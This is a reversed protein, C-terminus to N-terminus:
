GPAWGRARARAQQWKRELKADRAEREARQAAMEAYGPSCGCDNGAARTEALPRGEFGALACLEENLEMAHYAGRLSDALADFRADLAAAQGLRVPVGSAVLARAREPRTMAALEAARRARLRRM